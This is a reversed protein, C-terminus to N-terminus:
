PQVPFLDTPGELGAQPRICYKGSPQLELVIVSLQGIQARERKLEALASVTLIEPGACYLPKVSM